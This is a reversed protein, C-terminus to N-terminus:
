QVSFKTLLAIAQKKKEITVVVEVIGKKPQGYYVVSGVSAHAIVPLALLDEEGVVDLVHCSKIYKELLRIIINLADQSIYGPGSVVRTIPINLKLLLPKLEDFTARNVKNDIIIFAPQIGFELLTKTTQDGISIIIADKYRHLSQNILFKSTLVMGLPRALEKRMNDPMMLKGSTDIESNRVRTSSVSRTDEALILSVVVLTLPSLGAEKRKQNLMQARPMSEQSVVLAELTVDSVAPGYPDDILVLTYRDEYGHVDLWDIVDQKRAVSSKVRMTKYTTVFADSTLGILVHSGVDFAKTLLAEHGVHIHDFTGAVCVKQFQM